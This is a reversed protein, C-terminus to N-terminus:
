NAREFAREWLNCGTRLYSAPPVTQRLLFPPEFASAVGYHPEPKFRYSRGWKRLEASHGSTVRMPWSPQHGALIPLVDASIISLVQTDVPDRFLRRGPPDAPNLSIVTYLPKM